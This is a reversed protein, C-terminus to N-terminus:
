PQNGRPDDGDVSPNARFDAVLAAALIDAIADDLATWRRGNTRIAKQPL